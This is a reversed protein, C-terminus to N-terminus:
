EAWLEVRRIRWGVNSFASVGIEITNMGACLNQSVDVAIPQTILLQSAPASVSGLGWNNVKIDLAPLGSWALTGDELAYVLLRAQRPLAPGPIDFRLKLPADWSLRWYGYPGDRDLGFGALGQFSLVCDKARVTQDPLAEALCLPWDNRMYGAPPDTQQLMADLWPPNRWVPPQRKFWEYFRLNGGPKSAMIGDLMLQTLEGPAPPQRWLTLLTLGGSDNPAALFTLTTLQNAPPELGSSFLTSSGAPSYYVLEALSQESSDITLCAHPQGQRDYLEMYGVHAAAPTLSQTPREDPSGAAMSAPEPFLKWKLIRAVGDTATTAALVVGYLAILAVALAVLNRV